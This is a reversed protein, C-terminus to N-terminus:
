FLYVELDKGERGNWAPIVPEARGGADDKMM